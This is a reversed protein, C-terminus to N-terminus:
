LPTCSPTLIRVVGAVPSGNLSADSELWYKTGLAAGAAPITGIGGLYCGDPLFFKGDPSRGANQYTFHQPTATEGGLAPPTGPYYAAMHGLANTCAAGDSNPLELQV